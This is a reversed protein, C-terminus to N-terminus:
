AVKSGQAVEYARGVPSTPSIVGGPDNPDTGPPFAIMRTPSLPPGPAKTKPMLTPLPAFTGDAKVYGVNKYVKIGEPAQFGRETITAGAYEDFFNSIKSIGHKSRLRLSPM